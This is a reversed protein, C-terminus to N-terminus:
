ECSDNGALCRAIWFELATLPFVLRTTGAVRKAAM